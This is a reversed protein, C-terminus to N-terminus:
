AEAAAKRTASLVAYVHSPHCGVSQAIAGPALGSERLRFIEADRHIKQARQEASRGGRKGTGSDTGCKGARKLVAYVHSKSHGIIAAIADHRHGADNLQLIRAERQARAEDWLARIKPDAPPRGRIVKLRESLRQARAEAKRSQAAELTAKAEADRAPAHQRHEEADAERVLESIAQEPVCVWAWRRKITREVHRPLVEVVRAKFADFSIRRLLLQYALDARHMLLSELHSPIAEPPERYLAPENPPHAPTVETHGEYIEADCETVPRDQLTRQAGSPAAPLQFSAAGVPSRLPPKPADNTLRAKRRESRELQASHKSRRM